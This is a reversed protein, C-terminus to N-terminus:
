KIGLRKARHENILKMVAELIPRPIRLVVTQDTTIPRGAGKRTGGHQKKKM